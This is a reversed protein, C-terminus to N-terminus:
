KSSKKLFPKPVQPWGVWQAINNYFEALEQAHGVGEKLTKVTKGIPTATDEMDKLFDRISKGIGPKKKV